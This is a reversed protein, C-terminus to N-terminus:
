SALFMEAVRAKGLKSFSFQKWYSLRRKFKPVIEEVTKYAPNKNGFYVGLNEVNGSTWNINAIPSIRRGKWSGVWLGKTKKYNVRAVTAQEYLNLEKIVEKFCRNRKIIITADDMYHM